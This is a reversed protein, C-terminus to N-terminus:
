KRLPFLEDVLGKGLKLIRAIKKNDANYDYHLTKALEIKAASPLLSPGNCNYSQRCIRYIVAGLEDDTYYVSEGLQAAIERYSEIERSIKHFYHRADRFVGEGIDFRVYNVPSIYGGYMIWSDPYDINKSHVLKRRDHILMDGFTGDSCRKAAPSFYYSNAGFPYSFPTQDPDVVFNNRNIYVIQNRLSDLSNVPILNACGFRSLDIPRGQKTFHVRLRKVLMDHFALVDERCGYLLMHLHNGMVEFTIIEVSGLEYSCIAILTMMYAYDGMESFITPQGEGPTCLHWIGDSNDLVRQFIRLCRNEKDGFSMHGSSQMGGDYLRSM